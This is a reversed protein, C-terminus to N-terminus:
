LIPVYMSGAEVFADFCSRAASGIGYGADYQPSGGAIHEFDRTLVKM